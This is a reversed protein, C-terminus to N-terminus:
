FGSANSSKKEHKLENRESPQPSKLIKFDDHESKIFINKFTLDEDQIKKGDTTLKRKMLPSVEQKPKQKVAKYNVMEKLPQQHAINMKDVLMLTIPRYGSFFGRKIM